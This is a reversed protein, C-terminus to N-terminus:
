VICKKWCPQKTCWLHQIVFAPFVFGRIRICSCCDGNYMEELSATTCVWMRINTSGVSYMEELSAAKCVVPTPNLLRSVCLGVCLQHLLRHQVKRGALNNHVGVSKSNRIHSVCISICCGISYMEELSAVWCVWLNQIIFAPFVCGGWVYVASAAQAACKKSCM